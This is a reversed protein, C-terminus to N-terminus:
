RGTIGKYLGTLATLGLIGCVWFLVTALTGETQNAAAWAGGGGIVFLILISCYFRKWGAARNDSAYPDTRITVVPPETAKAQAKHMVAETAQPTEQKADNRLPPLEPASNVRVDLAFVWSDVAWEANGHSLGRRSELRRALEAIQGKSAEARELLEAPVGEDMAYLLLETEYNCGPCFDKLLYNLRARDRLVTRGNEVIIDRLAPRARDDLKPTM